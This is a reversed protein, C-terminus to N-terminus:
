VLILVGLQSIDINGLKWSFKKYIDTLSLDGGKIYSINKVVILHIVM